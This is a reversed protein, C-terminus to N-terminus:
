ALLRDLATALERMGFPKLIVAVGSLAAIRLEDPADLFGTALVIPLDAEHARAQAALEIGSMGPMALDTVLVSAAFGSRLLALAEEGSRARTVRYGLRELM